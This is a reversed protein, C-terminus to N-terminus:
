RKSEQAAAAGNATGNSLSMIWHSFQEAEAETLGTNPPMSVSGWRGSSGELMSKKLHALANSDNKYFAAIEKFPPGVLKTEMAHCARCTQESSSAALAPMSAAMLVTAIFLAKM